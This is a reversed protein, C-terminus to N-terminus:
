LYSLGSPAANIFGLAVGQPSMEENGPRQGQSFNNLLVLRVKYSVLKHLTQVELGHLPLSASRFGLDHIDLEGSYYTAQPVFLSDYINPQKPYAAALAPANALVIVEQQTAVALRHGDVAMGM